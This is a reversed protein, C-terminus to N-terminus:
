KGEVNSLDVCVAEKDEDKSVTRSEIPNLREYVANLADLSFRNPEYAVRVKLKTPPRKMAWVLKGDWVGGYARKPFKLGQAAFRQVVGYASGTERFLRFVLAVAGRVEADPDLGIGQEDDYCLGVPLPFRLEGRKAKNLKGGQLRARLFHLEAQAM